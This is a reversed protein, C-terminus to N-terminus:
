ARGLSAAVAEPIGSDAPGIRVVLPLEDPELPELTELQRALVTATAESVDNGSQRRAEVRRRLEPPPVDFHLIRIPVGLKAALDAFRQRQRRQLFTADAVATCGARLVAEALAAVRLYTEETAKDTYIGGNLESASPAGSAIGFIRKREVDSRIRFAGMGEVLEQTGTTKGSGSAGHTILLAPSGESERARDALDLYTGMKAVLGAKAEAGGTREQLFRLAAVKARVMARYVTYFRIVELGGYDGTHGVYANLLRRALDPRGRDSLDMACFAIENMVDIWRFSENFEIGDFATVSGDEELILNRLHLDGHCERVFGNELRAAFVDKLRLFEEESWASLRRIQEAHERAVECALLATMNDRVPAMVADPTGFGANAPAVESGGHFDAIERALRDMHEPRLKGMEILHSLLSEQSFQRMKLAFELPEGEGGIRPQGLTGTIPVVGLYLHPAFRRNLRVEEHCFFARRRLTTYDVFDFRVPKKLKYAFPGTLIVWSIHTEALTIGRTPHDYASARLLGEILAPHESTAASTPM